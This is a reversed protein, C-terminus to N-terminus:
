SPSASPRMKWCPRDCIFRMRRPGGPAPLPVCACSSAALRPSTCSEVPSMFFAIGAGTGILVTAGLLHLWKTIEYALM